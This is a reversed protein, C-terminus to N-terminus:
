HAVLERGEATSLDFTGEQFFIDSGAAFAEAKVAKAAADAESGLHVRVHGLDVGLHTELAARIGLPLPVGAGRRGLARDVSHHATDVAAAGPSAKRFLAPGTASEGGSLEPGDM